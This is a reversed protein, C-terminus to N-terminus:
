NSYIRDAESLLPPTNNSPETLSLGPFLPELIINASLQKCAIM